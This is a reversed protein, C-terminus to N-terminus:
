LLVGEKKAERIWDPFETMLRDYLGDESVDHLDDLAFFDCNDVKRGTMDDLNELVGYQRGGIGVFQWFIPLESAERILKEIRRNDSVGGDSIFLIYVPTSPDNEQSYFDIVSQIARVENNIRSGVSWKKWGGNDEKIFDSYNNIDVANLQTTKAGFAWCDLSGDNDFHVAM